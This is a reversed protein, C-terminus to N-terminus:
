FSGNVTMGIGCHPLPIQKTCYAALFASEEDALISASESHCATYNKLVRHVQLKKM